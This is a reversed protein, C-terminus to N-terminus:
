AIPQPLAATSPGPPRPQRPPTNPWTVAVRGDTLEGTTTIPRIDLERGWTLPRAPLDPADPTRLRTARAAQAIAATLLVLTAWGPPTTAPGAPGDLRIIAHFHVVGRRQYEAVKAYSLRAQATLAKSTLGAQSALSRRLAITFRRWLEPACANFLVAGTYDYCGACFPEGLRPDERAHKKPCSLHQGHPCIGDRRRPRCRLVRGDHQRQTHVPGYSPATLTVFVCPHTAVSAPVGKGGSLGARILQYTDARYVEACAPCRSARRTKCAVPLVGGPELSTAYRHLLEGTAADIHDVHGRLLVPQLCGGPHRIHGATLPDTPL